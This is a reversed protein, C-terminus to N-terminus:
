SCAPLKRAKRVAQPLIPSQTVARDLQDRSGRVDNMVLLLIFLRASWLYLYCALTDQECLHARKRFCSDDIVMYQQGVWTFLNRNETEPQLFCVSTQTDMKQKFCVFPFQRKGNTGNERQLLTNLFHIAPM